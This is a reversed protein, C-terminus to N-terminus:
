SGKKISDSIFKKSEDIIGDVEEITKVKHSFIRFGGIMKEVVCGRHVFFTDSIVRDFSEILNKEKPM